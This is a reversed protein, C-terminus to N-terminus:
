STYSTPSSINPIPKSSEFIRLMGSSKRKRGTELKQILHLSEAVAGTDHRGALQMSGVMTTMSELVRQFQSSELNCKGHHRKLSLFTEM